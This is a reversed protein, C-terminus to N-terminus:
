RLQYSRINEIELYPTQTIQLVKEAGRHYISVAESIVTECNVLSPLCWNVEVWTNMQKDVQSSSVNYHCMFPKAITEPGGKALETEM